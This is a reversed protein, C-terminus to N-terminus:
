RIRNQAQELNACKQWVSKQGCGSNWFVSGLFKSVTPSISTTSGLWNNSAPSNFWQKLAPCAKQYGGQDGQGPKSFYKVNPLVKCIDYYAHAPCNGRNAQFLGGSAKRSDYQGATAGFPVCDCCQECVSYVFYDLGVKNAGFNAMQNKRKKDCPNMNVYQNLQAKCGATGLNYISKCDQFNGNGQHAKLQCQNCLGAPIVVKECGFEGNAWKNPHCPNKNADAPSSLVMLVVSIVLVGATATTGILTYTSSRM